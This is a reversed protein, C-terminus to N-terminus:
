GKVAPEVLDREVDQVVFTVPSATHIVYDFGRGGEAAKEFVGDFANTATLEPVYEFNVEHEWEPHTSLLAQAKSPSRLTATVAYGASILQALIHSAIFGNGGTLLVTPCPSPASMIVLDKALFIQDPRASIDLFSDFFPPPWSAPIGTGRVQSSLAPQM